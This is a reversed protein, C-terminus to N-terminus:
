KKLAKDKLCLYDHLFEKTKESYKEYLMNLFKNTYDQYENPKLEDTCDIFFLNNAEAILGAIGVINFKRYECAAHLLNCLDKHTHIRKIIRSIEAKM